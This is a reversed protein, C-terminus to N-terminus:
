PTPDHPEIYFSESQSLQLGVQALQEPALTSKIAQKDPESKTRILGPTRLARLAETVKEWTWKPLPKLAATGTRFGYTALATTASKVKSFLRDRHQLAYTEAEKLLRAHEKEFPDLQKGYTDRTQQIQADRDAALGNIEVTLQAIRDVATAFQADDTILCPTPKLRKSM